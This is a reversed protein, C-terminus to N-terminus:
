AAIVQYAWDACELVEETAIVVVVDIEERRVMEQRVQVVWIQEVGHAAHVDCEGDPLVVRKMLAVSHQALRQGVLADRMVQSYPGAFGVLGAEPSFHNRM